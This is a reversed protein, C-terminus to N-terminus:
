GPMSTNASVSWKSWQSWLGDVGEQIAAKQFLEENGAEGNVLTRVNHITITQGAGVSVNNWSSAGLFDNGNFPPTHTYDDEWREQKVNVKRSKDCHVQIKYDVLKVGSTNHGAFAPAVAKVTCAANTTAAQAPAALAFPVTAVALSVACILAARNRASRSKTAPTTSRSM